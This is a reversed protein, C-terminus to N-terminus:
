EVTIKIFQKNNVYKPEESGSVGVGDCGTDKNLSCIAAPYVYYIGPDFSYSPGDCVLSEGQAVACSQPAKVINKIDLCSDDSDVKCNEGDKNCRAKCVAIGGYFQRMSKSSDQNNITIKFDVYEQKCKFEEDSIKECSEDSTTLSPADFLFTSAYNVQPKAFEAKFANFMNQSNSLLYIMIGVLVIALLLSVISIGRKGTNKIKKNKLM